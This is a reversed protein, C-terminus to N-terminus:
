QMKCLFLCHDKELPDLERYDVVTFEKALQDRVERFIQKPKKAIDVSRAKIALLGFGGPMLFERCNKIFIGAQDRQAVDQYVVDVACIRHAYTKPQAADGLIPAINGRQEAVFVLDRVVRPAFDLAFVIGEKGVIDSVHSVTTGTSAGLYLLISGPRIGMQPMGKVLAAALKSKMPNWERYEIGKVTVLSEDYVRVGPVLNQTFLSRGEEYVGQLKSPKM